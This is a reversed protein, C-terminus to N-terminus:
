ARDARYHCSPCIFERRRPTGFALALLLLLPSAFCVLPIFLLVLALAFLGLQIISHALWAGIDTRSRLRTHCLPCPPASRKRATFLLLLVGAAFLLSYRFVPDLAHWSDITFSPM